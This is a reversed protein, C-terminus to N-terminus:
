LTFPGVLVQRDATAAYQQQLDVVVWSEGDDSVELTWTVPDRDPFDNATSWSYEDFTRPAPFQIRLESRGDTGLDDASFNLDLWKTATRGDFAAGPTESGPNDGGPNTYTGGTSVVSGENTLTLESAQVSNAAGARETIVWRVYTATVPGTGSRFTLTSAAVAAAPLTRTTIGLAAGASAARLLERRQM